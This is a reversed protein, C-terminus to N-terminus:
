PIAGIKSDTDYEGPEGNAEATFTFGQPNTGDIEINYTKETTSADLFAAGWNPNLSPDPDNPGNGECSFDLGVSGKYDDYATLTVRALKDVSRAKQVETPDSFSVVKVVFYGAM